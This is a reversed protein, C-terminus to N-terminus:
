INIASKTRLTRKRWYALNRTSRDSWKRSIAMKSKGIYRGHVM